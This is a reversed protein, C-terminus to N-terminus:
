SSKWTTGMEWDCYPQRVQDLVGTVGGNERYSSDALVQEIAFGVAPIERIIEVAIQPKSQYKNELNFRSKLKYIKFPLPYIISEVTAYASVDNLLM